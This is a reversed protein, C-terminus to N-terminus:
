ADDTGLYIEAVRPDRRIESQTGQALVEGQFLVTVRSALELAVDM